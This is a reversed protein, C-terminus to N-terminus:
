FSSKITVQETFSQSAFFKGDGQRDLDVRVTVSFLSPEYMPDGTLRSSRPPQYANHEVQFQLQDDQRPLEAVICRGARTEPTLAAELQGPNGLPDDADLRFFGPVITEFEGTLTLGPLERALPDPQVRFTRRYLRNQPLADTAGRPAAAYEVFVFDTLSDSFQRSRKGAATFILRNLARDYNMPTGDPLPRTGHERAYFSGGFPVTLEGAYDPYVVASKCEGGNPLVGLSLATSLEQTIRSLAERGLSQAQRHAEGRRHSRLAVRVSELVVLLILAVLAVSMLAEVLTVGRKVRM